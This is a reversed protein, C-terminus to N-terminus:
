KKVLIRKLSGIELEQRHGKDKDVGFWKLMEDSAEAAADDNCLAKKMYYKASKVRGGRNSLLAAMLKQAGLPSIVQQTDTSWVRLIGGNVTVHLFLAIDAESAGTRFSISREKEKEWCVVPPYGVERNKRKTMFLRPKRYPVRLKGFQVIQGNKM